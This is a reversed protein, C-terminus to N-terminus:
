CVQVATRIQGPRDAVDHRLRESSVQLVNQWLLSSKCLSFCVGPCLTNMDEKGELWNTVLALYRRENGWCSCSHCLSQREIWM